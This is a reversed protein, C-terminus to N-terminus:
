DARPMFAIAFPAHGMQQFMHDELSRRRVGVHRLREAVAAGREVARRVGIAGIVELRQWRRVVVEFERDAKLGVPHHVAENAALVQQRFHRHNAVLELPAFVRRLCQEALPHHGGREVPM